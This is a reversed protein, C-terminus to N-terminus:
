LKSGTAEEQPARSVLKMWYLEDELLPLLWIPM